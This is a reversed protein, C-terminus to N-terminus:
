RISKKVLDILEAADWPKSVCHAMNSSTINNMVESQAYGTLLICPTEPSLKAIREILEHGKMGPMMEDTIIAALSINNALFDETIELAEEGSEAFELTYIDSFARMIQQQLATLISREDDVCIIAAQM